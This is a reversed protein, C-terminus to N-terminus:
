ERARLRDLWSLAEARRTHLLNAAEILRAPDFTAGDIAPTRALADLLAGDDGPPELRPTAAPTHPPPGAMPASPGPPPTASGPRSCAMALLALAVSGGRGPARLRSRNLAAVPTSRM